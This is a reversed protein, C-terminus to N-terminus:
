WGSAGTGSDGRDQDLLRLILGEDPELVLDRLDVAAHQRGPDTSLELFAPGRAQDGLALPVRDSRFNLAILLRRGLERQFCFVDPTVGVLRQTGAQLAPERSRLHILERIFALTSRPDEQQAEVCLSEADAVVPLWPDATSFGAGAGTRSPRRWPMPSREPDRGDVDVVRDPAIHADPLGLEQGYYLFPTGRLTCILTAATRARRQGSGAEDAYRTAVRSHDHNELFWAPWASQEALETFEQVSARFAAAQWPLHFFVFNHALHLEDGTNIYEVLRHLDLLYVEGILVRSECAGVIVRSDYADVVARIKRLRQHMTPWDEDHHRGPENDRLEPDKAIRYIADIRFGDVGRDLWFRLVDHMAAEVEPNDWNLDPQRPMFSHLYYQGTAEHFTWAPGVAAFASRWNNPPGGDPAPDRWVYWDRKASSRGSASEVFWPHQDSTHNPVWDVIVGMGRRKAEAVLTDFDEMTGFLPDVDTYDSVDYGFDAMPSRYFPSLWIAAVGLSGDTGDNLYDLHEVIGRLDGVGDGNADAFSRPYIQYIVGRQWWAGSKTESM